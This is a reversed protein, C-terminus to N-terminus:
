DNSGLVDGYIIYYYFKNLWRTHLNNFLISKFYVYEGKLLRIYVDGKLIIIFRFM